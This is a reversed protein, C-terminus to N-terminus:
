NTGIVLAERAAHIVDGTVAHLHNIELVRLAQDLLRDLLRFNGNTYREIAAVTETAAAGSLDNLGLQPWRQALVYGLEDHGLAQYRHVFGVRSSLQPYRALRRELGPMGILILGLTSRDYHDRLAELCRANLREAEDVIVLRTRISSGYRAPQPVRNEPTEVLWRLRNGLDRIEKSLREATITVTPTYLVTQLDPHEGARHLLETWPDITMTAEMHDWRAHQRASLTKGVGPPGYCVGIYRSRTVADAFEVFRRQEKTAVFGRSHSAPPPDPTGTM